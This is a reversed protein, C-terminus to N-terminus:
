TDEELTEVVKKLLRLFTDREEVSFRRMFGRLRDVLFQHITKYLSIGTETLEVRVIRRDKPDPLRRAYKNNVLWDVIRTSTSLPVQLEHSLEGMSISGPSRGFINGIRFFLDFNSGFGKGGSDLDLINQRLAIINEPVVLSFRSKLLLIRQFLDVIETSHQAQAGIFNDPHLDEM